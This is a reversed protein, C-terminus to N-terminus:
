ECQAAKEKQLCETVDTSEYLRVFYAKGGCNGCIFDDGSINEEYKTPIGLVFLVRNGYIDTRQTDHVALLDASMAEGCSDCVGSYGRLYLFLDRSM